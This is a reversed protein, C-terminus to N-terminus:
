SCGAGRLHNPKLSVYVVRGQKKICMRNYNTNIAYLMPETRTETNVDNYQLLGTM